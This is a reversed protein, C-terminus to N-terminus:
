TPADVADDEDVTGDCDDDEGNCLEDAGPYQMADDDDCDEANEVYGSPASCAEITTAADGYGDGDVDGYYTQDTGEDVEGDCDNDIEDCTEDAGPYVLPDSDDCDEDSNFGDGDADVANTGDTDDIPKNPDPCGTALLVAVLLTLSSRPTM